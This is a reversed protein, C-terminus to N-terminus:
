HRKGIGEETKREEKSMEREGAFNDEGYWLIKLHTWVMQTAAEEGHHPDDHEGNADPIRSRVEENTVDDCPVRLM